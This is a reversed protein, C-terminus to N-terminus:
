GIDERFRREMGSLASVLVLICGAMLIAAATLKRLELTVFMNNM